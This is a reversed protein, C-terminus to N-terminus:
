CWRMRFAVADEDRSVYITWGVGKWRGGAGEPGFEAHCWARVEIVFSDISLGQPIRQDVIFRHSEYPFRQVKHECLRGMYKFRIVAM